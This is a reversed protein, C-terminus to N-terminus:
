MQSPTRKRSCPFVFLVLQCHFAFTINDYGISSASVNSPEFSDVAFVLKDFQSSSKSKRRSCIVTHRWKGAEWKRLSVGLYVM